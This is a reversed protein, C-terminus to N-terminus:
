QIPLGWDPFADSFTSFNTEGVFSPPNADSNGWNFNAPTDQLGLAEIGFGSTSLGDLVNVDSAYFGKSVGSFQLSSFHGKVGGSKFALGAGNM